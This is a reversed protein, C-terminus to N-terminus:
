LSPFMKKGAHGLGLVAVCGNILLPIDIVLVGRNGAVPPSCNLQPLTCGAGKGWLQGWM